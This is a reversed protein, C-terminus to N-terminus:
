AAAIRQTKLGRGLIMAAPLLVLPWLEDPNGILLSGDFNLMLLACALYMGWIDRLRWAQWLTVAM